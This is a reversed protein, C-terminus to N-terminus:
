DPGLSKDKQFKHLIEKFKAETVEVYLERNGQEDMFRPFYLALKIIDVINVCRDEKFLSQFHSKGINALGEFSTVSRGERDKLSWITNAAKRGKTYAQFFITNEDGNELWIARSKIVDYSTKTNGLSDDSIVTVVKPIKHHRFNSVLQTKAM